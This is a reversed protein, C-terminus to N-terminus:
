VAMDCVGVFFAPMVTVLINLFFFANLTMGLMLLFRIRTDDPLEQLSPDSHGRNQIAKLSRYGLLGGWLVGVLAVVTVVIITSRISEPTFFILNNFNARCGFEAAAYVLVFHVFWLIPGALLTFALSLPSITRSM